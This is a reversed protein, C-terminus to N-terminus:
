CSDLGIMYLSVLCPLTGAGSLVCCHARVVPLVCLLLM